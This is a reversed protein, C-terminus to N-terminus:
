LANFSFYIVEELSRERAVSARFGAFSQCDKIVVLTNPLQPIVLEHGNRAFADHDFRQERIDLSFGMGVAKMVAERRTWYQFFVDVMKCRPLSLLHAYEAASFQSKAIQDVSISQDIAECDVGVPQNRSV